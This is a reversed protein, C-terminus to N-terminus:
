VGARPLFTRRYLAEDILQSLPHTREKLHSCKIGEEFFFLLNKELSDPCEIKESWYGPGSAMLVDLLRTIARMNSDGTSVLSISTNQRLCSTSIIMLAPNVNDAERPGYM